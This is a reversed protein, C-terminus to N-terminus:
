VLSFWIGGTGDYDKGYVFKPATDMQDVLFVVYGELSGGAYIEGSFEPAPDVVSARELSENSGAFGDFSFDSLYLAANDEVDHVDAKIMAVIYEKGDPAEDNFMNAAEIMEWAQEGAM